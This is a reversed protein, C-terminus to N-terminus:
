FRPPHPSHYCDAIKFLGLHQQHLWRFKSQSRIVPVWQCLRISLISGQTWLHDLFAKQSGPDKLAYSNPFICTLLPLNPKANHPKTMSLFSVLLDHLCQLNGLLSYTSLFWRGSSSGTPLPLTTRTFAKNARLLFGGLIIVSTLLPYKCYLCLLPARFGFTSKLWAKCAVSSLVSFGMSELGYGMDKRARKRERPWIAQTTGRCTLQM